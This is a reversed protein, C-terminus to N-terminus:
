SNYKNANLLLLDQSLLIYLNEIANVATNEIWAIEVKNKIM